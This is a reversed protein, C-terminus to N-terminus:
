NTYLTCIDGSSLERSYIKFEDTDGTFPGMPRVLGKNCFGFGSLSNALTVYNPVTSATYSHAMSTISGILM